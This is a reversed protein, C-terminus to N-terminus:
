DATWRPQALGTTDALVRRFRELAAVDHERPEIVASDRVRWRAAVDLPANGTLVGAAQAAAGYAVLEDIAPIEVDRGSLRAVADRWPAGRAGGGVLVLRTNDSLDGVHARLTELALLLTAVVGDYTARLIQGSTTTHRLGTITAAATPLNPTREGDFFPVVVVEGGDEVAERDVRLWEAVRDVALTANLTCALPLHHGSADAFGAITGSPDSVAQRSVCYVTGSTGVSLVPQGPECALGLAAAMNDGTGPGVIAGVRLGTAEAARHDVMGAAAAPGLVTPLLNEDLGVAELSLVATSYEERTASWWGTGSADGRDTTAEGCLRETVFDHPLRVARADEVTGPEIRRLWAWSSVTLAPVPVVGIEAAWRGAGGLASILAEADAAARTDNWLIAPRLPRGRPDDLVVLGHQQGAVAIAEVEKRRGTQALADRLARWWGEPDSERAGDSGVVLHPACGEAVIAGDGVDVILVKTAQTSSDVGAVLTRVLRREDDM